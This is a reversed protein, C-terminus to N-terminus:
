SKKICIIQVYNYPILYWTERDLVFLKIVFLM